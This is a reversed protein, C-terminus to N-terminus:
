FFLADGSFHTVPWTTIDDAHAPASYGPPLMCSFSMGRGAPLFGLRRSLERLRPAHTILQFIEGEAQSVFDAVLHGLLARAARESHEALVFDLLTTCRFDKYREALPRTELRTRTVALGLPVGDGSSVHTVVCAGGRQSAHDIKWQLKAPSMNFRVPMTREAAALIAAVEEGGADARRGAETGEAWRRSRVAVARMAVGALPQLGATMARAMRPWPMHAALLPRPCRILVTRSAFGPQLYGLKRYIHLTEDTSFVSGRGFGHEAAWQTSERQLRTALGRGRLEPVTHLGGTWLWPLHRGGVTLRDAWVRIWSVPRNSEAVLCFLSPTAATTDPNARLERILSPGVLTSVGNEALSSCEHVAIAHFRCKTNDIVIRGSGVVFWRARAGGDPRL